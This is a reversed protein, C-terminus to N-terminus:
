DGGTFGDGIVSASQTVHSRPDLATDTVRPGANGVRGM